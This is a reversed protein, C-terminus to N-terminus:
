TATPVTLLAVITFANFLAHSIMSAFANRSRYYVFCLVVGGLALPLAAYLDGHALGFLVSSLAAGAWFGGFRLGFNFFFVRFISEEAIPAAVVAVFAFVAITAPDHLAKFIEVSQQHHVAHTFRDVLAEGGDAVAVMAIAGLVGFAVTAASPRRFGLQRLSFKSIRPLAALVGAVLLGELFLQAFVAVDFVAPNIRRAQMPPSSVEAFFAAVLLAAVFAALLWAWISTFSDKPWRTPWAPSITSISDNM